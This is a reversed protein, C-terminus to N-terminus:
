SVRGIACSVFSRANAVGAEFGAVAGKEPYGISQLRAVVVPRLSEDSRWHVAQHERDVVVDSVGELATMAKLVSRECGGCKLNDIEVMMQKATTMDSGKM